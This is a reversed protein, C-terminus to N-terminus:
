RELQELAALCGSGCSTICRLGAEGIEDALAAVLPAPGVHEPPFERAAPPHVGPILLAPIPALPKAM